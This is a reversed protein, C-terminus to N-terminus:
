SIEFEEIMSKAEIFRDVAHDVNSWVYGLCAVGDFVDQPLAHINSAKMGGLAILEVHKPKLYGLSEIDSKSWASGNINKSIPEFVPSVIFRDVFDNRDDNLDALQHISRSVIKKSVVGGIDVKKMASLKTRTFHVGALDYEELLEVHDHIIINSYFAPDIHQLFFSVDEISWTPKRLHFSKMGVHFLKNIYYEEMDFSDAHSYVVLKM